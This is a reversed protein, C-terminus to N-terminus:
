RRTRRRRLTRIGNIAAGFLVAVAAATLALGTSQWRQAALRADEDGVLLNRREAYLSAGRLGIVPGTFRAPDAAAYTQAIASAGVSAFVILRPASGGAAAVASGDGRPRFQEAWNRVDDQGEALLFVPNGRLTSWAAEDLGAPRGEIDVNLMFQRQFSNAELSDYLARVGAAGGPVFGLVVYDQRAILPQGLRDTVALTATEHALRAILSQAHVAGSADTSVVVPVGGRRWVDRLVAVALDDMEGAGTPRFEFAVLTYPNSPQILDVATGIADIRAQEEAALDAFAVPAFVNVADTFFPAVVALALFVTVILRDLKFRARHRARARRRRARKGAPQAADAEAQDQELHRRMQEEQAGLLSELVRVRRAELDDIIMGAVASEAAPIQDAIPIIADSIGSLPGSSPTEGQKKAEASVERSRDRLKQLQPDLQAVPKEAIRVKQDGVQLVVPVESPQLQEIWGPLSERSVGPAAEVPPLEPAAAAAAVAGALGPEAPAPAEEAPGLIEDLDLADSDLDLDVTPVLASDSAAPVPPTESPPLNLLADIDASSLDMVLEGSETIPGEVPEVAFPSVPSPPAAPKQPAGASSEVDALWDLAAATEQDEVARAMPTPSAPAIDRMWAPIEAEALPAEGQGASVPTAGGSEGEDSDTAGVWDLPGELGAGFGPMPEPEAPPLSEASELPEIPAMGRMWDPLDVPEADPPAAAQVESAPPETARMWDLADEDSAAQDASSMAPERTAPAADPTTQWDPPLEAMWDLATEDGAPASPEAPAAEAPVSAFWDPVELDPLDFREAGGTLTQAAPPTEDALAGTAQEFAPPLELPTEAAPDAIEPGAETPWEAPADIAMEPQAESPTADATRSLFGALWNEDFTDPGLDLAPASELEPTPASAAPPGEALVDPPPSILGDDFGALWDDSIPEAPEGPAASELSSLWDESPPETPESLWDAPQEVPEPAPPASEGMFDALWDEDPGVPASPEAVTPLQPESAAAEHLWDTDEGAPEADWPLPEDDALTPAPEVPAAPPPAPEAPMSPPMSLWDVGSEWAPAAFVDAEDGMGPEWPLSLDAPDQPPQAASPTPTPAQRTPPAGEMQWPVAALPAGPEPPPPAMEADEGTWPLPGSQPLVFGGPPAAASDPQWPLPEGAPGTASPMDGGFEDGFPGSDFFGGAEEAAPEADWPQPEAHVTAPASTVDDLWSLDIDDDTAGSPDSFAAGAGAGASPEARGGGTIGAKRLWGPLDEDDFLPGNISM